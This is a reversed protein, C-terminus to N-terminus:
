CDKLVCTRDLPSDSSAQCSVGLGTPDTGCQAEPTCCAIGTKPKKCKALACVGPVQTTEVGGDGRVIQPRDDDCAAPLLLAGLMLFRKM